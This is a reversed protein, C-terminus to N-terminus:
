LLGGLLATLPAMISELQFISTVKRCVNSYTYLVICTGRYLATYGFYERAFQKADDKYTDYDIEPLNGQADRYSELKAIFLKYEDLQEGTMEVLYVDDIPSVSLFGIQRRKTAM